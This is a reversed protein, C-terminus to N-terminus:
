ESLCISLCISLTYTPPVFFNYALRPLGEAQSRCSDLRLVLAPTQVAVEEGGSVLSSKSVRRCESWTDASTDPTRVSTPSAITKAILVAYRFSVSRAMSVVLLLFRVVPPHVLDPAEIPLAALAPLVKRM